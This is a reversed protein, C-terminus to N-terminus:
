FYRSLLGNTGLPASNPSSSIEATPSIKLPTPAPNTPATSPMDVRGTSAYSAMEPESSPLESSNLFNKALYLGSVEVPKPSAALNIVWNAAGPPIAKFALLAILAFFAMSDFPRSAVSTVANAAASTAAVVGSTSVRPSKKSTPGVLLISVSSRAPASSADAVRAFLSLTAASPAEITRPTGAIALNPMAPRPLPTSASPFVSM